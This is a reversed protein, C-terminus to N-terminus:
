VSGEGDDEDVDTFPVVDAEFNLYFYWGLEGDPGTVRDDDSACNGSGGPLIQSLPDGGVLTVDEPLTLADADAESIFGRILGDRLRPSEGDTVDYSAALQADSLTVEFDGFPVTLEHSASAFCPAAPENVASATSGTADLCVGESQNFATTVVRPAEPDPECSDTPAPATCQGLMIDLETSAADPALPRLSALASLDLFGDGTDDAGLADEVGDNVDGTINRCFFLVRAHPQPDRLKLSTIRFTTPEFQCQDDCGEGPPDCEEGVQVIGDGCIPVIDHTWAYALLQDFASPGVYDIADLEALTDFRRDDDTGPVGDDGARYAVIGEAAAVALGAGDPPSAVFADFDLTNAVELVGLAEPSGDEVFGDAKGGIQFSDDQADVAAPAPDFACAAFLALAPALHLTRM